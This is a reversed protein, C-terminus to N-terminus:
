SPATSIGRALTFFRGATVTGSEIWGSVRLGHYVGMFASECLDMSFQNVYRLERFVNQIFQPITETGFHQSRRRLKKARDYHHPSLLTTSIINHEELM